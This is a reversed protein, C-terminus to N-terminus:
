PLELEFIQGSTTGILLSENGSDNITTISFPIVNKELIKLESNNKIDIAWITGTCFDGVFIFDKWKNTNSLKTGGDPQRANSHFQEAEGALICCRQQITVRLPSHHGAPQELESATKARPAYRAYRQYFRKCYKSLM